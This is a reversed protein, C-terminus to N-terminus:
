TSMGAPEGQGGREGDGQRDHRDEGERAGSSVRSIGLARRSLDRDGGRGGERRRLDVADHPVLRNDAVGDVGDALEGAGARRAGRLALALGRPGVRHGVVDGGAREEVPRGGGVADDVGDVGRLVAAGEVEAAVEGADVALVGVAEAGHGGGIALAHAEADGGVGLHAVDLDGGVAGGEVEGTGEGLDVVLGAVARGGDAQGGEGQGVERGPHAPAQAAGDGDRGVAGLHGDAAGEALDVASGVGTHRDEAGIPDELRGVDVRDDVVGAGVGRDHGQLRVALAEVARGVGLLAGELAHESGVPGGAVEIVHGVAVAVGVVDVGSAADDVDRAVRM